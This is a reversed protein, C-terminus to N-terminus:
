ILLASVIGPLSLPLTVKWFTQWKNAGVNLAADELTPNISQLVGRLSLYAIPTFTFVQSLVVGKFGYISFNDLNLLGRTVLGNFGFLFLIAVASVFPPSIIPLMTVMHLLGRGPVRLRTVVLAAIYGLVVSIVAVTAGVVLSNRLANQYL